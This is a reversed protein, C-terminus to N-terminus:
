LDGKSARVTVIQLELDLLSRVYHFIMVRLAVQLIKQVALEFLVDKVVKGVLLHHWDFIKHVFKLLAIFKLTSFTDGAWLVCM